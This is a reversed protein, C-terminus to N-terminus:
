SIVRIESGTSYMFESLLAARSSGLMCNAVDGIRKEVAVIIVVVEARRRGERRLGM